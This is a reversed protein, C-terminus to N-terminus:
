ILIQRISKNKNNNKAVNGPSTIIFITLHNQGIM